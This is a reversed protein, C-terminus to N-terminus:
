SEMKSALKAFAEDDWLSNGYVAARVKEEGQEIERRIVERLANSKAARRLFLPNWKGGARLQMASTDLMISKLLGVCGLSAEMLPDSIAVFNPVESCPWKEQLKSVVSLFDKRDDAKEIHYRELCLVSTRRAIQGGETVLDLLDFSGVFIWKTGSTNSLSKLTDMVVTDKAFRLLHAAEDIVGVQTRRANLAGQVCKRLMPITEKGQPQLILRGDQVSSTVKREGGPEALQELMSQFLGKFGHRTDGNAYAEVSILPIASRDEQMLQVFDEFLSKLLVRTLTSKGAGTAGTVIIVNSDTHPMLMPMLQGLLSDMSRHKVRARFFALQKAVMEPTLGIKWNNEALRSTSSSRAATAVTM